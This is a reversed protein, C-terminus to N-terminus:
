TMKNLVISFHSDIKLKYISADMLLSFCGPRLKPWGCQGHRIIYMFKNQPVAKYSYCFHSSLYSDQIWCKACADDFSPPSHNTTLKACFWNCRTIQSSHREVMQSSQLTIMAMFMLLFQEMKHSRKIAMKVSTASQRDADKHPPPAGEASRNGDEATASQPLLCVTEMRCRIGM